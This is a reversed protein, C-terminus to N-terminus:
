RKKRRRMMRLRQLLLKRVLQNQRQHRNILRKPPQNGLHSPNTRAEKLEVKPSLPIM